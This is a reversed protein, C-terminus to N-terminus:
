WGLPRPRSPKDLVGRQHHGSRYLIHRYRSVDEGGQVPDTSSSPSRCAAPPFPGPWSWSAGCIPINGPQPPAGGCPPLAPAATELRLERLPALIRCFEILQEREGDEYYKPPLYRVADLLTFPPTRTGSRRTASTACCSGSLGPADASRAHALMSAVVLKLPTASTAASSSPPRTTPYIIRDLVAGVPTFPVEAAPDSPM